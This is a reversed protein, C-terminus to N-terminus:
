PKFVNFKNLSHYLILLKKDQQLLGLFQSDNQWYYITASEDKLSKFQVEIAKLLAERVKNLNETEGGLQIYVTILNGEFFYLNAVSVPFGLLQKMFRGKARYFDVSNDSSIYQLNNEFYSIDANLKYPIFNFNM